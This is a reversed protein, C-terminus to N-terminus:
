VLADPLKLRGLHVDTNVYFPSNEFDIAPNPREFNGYAPRYRSTSSRWVPLQDPKCHGCRPGAFSGCQERVSGVACFGRKDTTRRFVRTLAAIEITTPCDPARQRRSGCLMISEAPIEARAHAMAIVEAQATENLAMYGLRSSEM